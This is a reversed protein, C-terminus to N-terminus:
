NQFNSKLKVLVAKIFDVKGTFNSTDTKAKHLIVIDHYQTGKIKTELLNLMEEQIDVAFVNGSKQIIKALEITFFGPGCGLDMTMIGEKVYPNVIKKPNQIIRRFFIDLLGAKVVPCINETQKM